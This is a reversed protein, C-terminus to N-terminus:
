KHVEKIIKVIDYPIIDKTEIEEVLGFMDGTDSEFECTIVDRPLYEKNNLSSDYQELVEVSYIKNM